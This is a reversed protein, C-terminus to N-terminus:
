NSVSITVCYEFTICQIIISLCVTTINLTFTYVMIHMKEVNGSFLIMKVKESNNM